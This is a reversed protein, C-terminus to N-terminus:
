KKTMAMYCSYGSGGSVSTTFHFNIIGAAYNGSAHIGGTGAPDIIMNGVSDITAQVTVNTNDFNSINVTYGGNTSAKTVTSTWATTDSVAPV